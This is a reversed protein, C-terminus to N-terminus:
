ENIICEMFNYIKKAQKAWRKENLVFNYANNTIKLEEDVTLNIARKVANALGLPSDDAIIMNDLYEPPYSSIKTSVVLTRSLFYEFTKSPFTYKSIPNNIQRPNILIDARKQIEMMKDNSVRGLYKIRNDNIQSKEVYKKLEGDGYIHLEIESNKLFSMSKILNIIGNYETLAGSFVIIRKENKIKRYNEKPIDNEDVGGEILLTRKDVLYDTSVFKSLVIFNKCQSISKKTSKDFFSRLIQSLGKRNSIDDIPLDELMCIGKFNKKIIKKLPIGIQPFMNFGLIITNKDLIKLTKVLARYMFYIQSFQKIIPLNIYSISQYDFEKFNYKKGKIFVKHDQPYCAYPLLSLVKINVKDLNGLEKAINYQMKNGAVSIGNYMNMEELPVLYSLFIVNM